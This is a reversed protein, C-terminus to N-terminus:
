AFSFVSCTLVKRAVEKSATNTRTCPTLSCSFSLYTPLMCLSHASAPIAERDISSPDLHGLDRRAPPSVGSHASSPWFVHAEGAIGFSFMVPHLPHTFICPDPKEFWNLIRYVSPLVSFIEEGFPACVVSQWRDVLANHPGLTDIVIKSLLPVQTSNCSSGASAM